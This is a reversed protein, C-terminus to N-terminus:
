KIKLYNKFNMKCIKNLEDKGFKDKFNQAFDDVTTSAGKPIEVQFKQNILDLEKLFSYRAILSSVAISPYQVEGKTKFTIQHNIIKEENSIKEENNM